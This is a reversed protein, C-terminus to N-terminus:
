YIKEISLSEFWFGICYFGEWKVGEYKRGILRQIELFDVQKVDRLIVEEKKGGSYWVRIIELLVM